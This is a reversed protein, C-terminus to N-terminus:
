ERRYLAIQEPLFVPMAAQSCAISIHGSRVGTPDATQGRVRGMDSIQSGRHPILIEGATSLRVGRPLREFIPVGLEQEMSLILRSLAAWTIVLPEAPMH